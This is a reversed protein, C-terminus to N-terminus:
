GRVGIIPPPYPLGPLNPNAVRDGNVGPIAPQSVVPALKQAAPAASGGGLYRQLALLSGRVMAQGAPQELFGSTNQALASLRSAETAAELDGAMAAKSSIWKLAARVTPKTLYAATIAVPAGGAVHGLLSALAEIGTAVAVPVMSSIEAQAPAAAAAVKSPNKGASLLAADAVDSMTAGERLGLASARSGIYKAAAEAAPVAERAV